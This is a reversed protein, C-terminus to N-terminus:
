GSDDEEDSNKPRQRVSGVYPTSRGARIEEIEKLRKFKKDSVLVVLISYPLRSLTVAIGLLYTMM